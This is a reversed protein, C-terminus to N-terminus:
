AAVLPPRRAVYEGIRDRDRPAIDLFRVGMGRERAVGGHVVHVVRGLATFGGTQGPLCLRLTIMSGEPLVEATRLFLGERSLERAQASKRENWRYFEVRETYPVRPNARKEDLSM